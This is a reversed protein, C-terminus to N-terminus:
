NNANNACRVVARIQKKDCGLGSELEICILKLNSTSTAQFGMGWEVKLFKQAQAVKTFGSGNQNDEYFYQRIKILNKGM